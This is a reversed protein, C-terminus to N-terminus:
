IIIGPSERYIPTTTTAFPSKSGSCATQINQWILGVTINRVATM